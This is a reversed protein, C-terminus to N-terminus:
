WMSSHGVRGWGVRSLGFGRGVRLILEIWSSFISHQYTRGSFSLEDDYLLIYRPQLLFRTSWNSYPVDGLLICM